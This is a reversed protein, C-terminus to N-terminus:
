QVPAEETEKGDDKREEPLSNLPTPLSTNVPASWVLLFLVLIGLSDTVRPADIAGPM